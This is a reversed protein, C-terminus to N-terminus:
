NWNDDDISWVIKKNLSSILRENWLEDNLIFKLNSMIYLFFKKTKWVNLTQNVNDKVKFDNFFNKLSRILNKYFKKILLMEELDTM